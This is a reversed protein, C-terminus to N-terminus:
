LYNTKNIKTHYSWMKISIAPVCLQEIYFSISAVLMIIYLLSICTQYLLLEGSLLPSAPHPVSSYPYPILLSSAYAQCHLSRPQLCNTLSWSFFHLAPALCFWKCLYSFSCLRLIQCAYFGYIVYLLDPHLVSSCLLSSFSLHLLM